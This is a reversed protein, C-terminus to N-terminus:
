TEAAALRSGSGTISGADELTTLVSAAIHRIEDTENFYYVVLVRGDDLEVANPYGLDGNPGGGRVILEPAEDINECEPDLLRCRVGRPETGRKGYALFIRSDRLRLACQPYGWVTSLVPASWTLGMDDSVAYEMLGGEVYCRMFCVLGGSATAVLFPEHYMHEKEDGASRAVTAHFAWSRGGDRSAVLFAEHGQPTHERTCPRYCPLLLLGPEPEVVRGRCGAGSCTPGVRVMDSWTHGDDDSTVVGVGANTWLAGKAKLCYVDAPLSHEEAEPRAQWRFFNAVLRGTSTLAIAPDQQALEDAPCLEVPEPTWTLGEDTSRVLMGRSLTHVHEVTAPGEPELPARRFTVLLDGNGARAVGPFTSYWDPHKYVIRDELKRLAM